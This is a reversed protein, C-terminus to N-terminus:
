MVLVVSIIKVYDALVLRLFGHSLQKKLVQFPSSKNSKEPILNWIRYGLYGLSDHGYHVTRASPLCFPNSNFTRTAPRNPNNDLKFIKSMIETACGHKVKFMEIAMAHINRHHVKISGDMELLQEFSCTDNRYVFRLARKQIKDIKNNIGRDYFMWALPSFGFQSDIFSKMLLRRQNFNHFRGVRILASLKQNAKKCLNSIHYEFSLDKKIYVGLLKECTSEWIQSGGAMAFVVEHKHGAFIFHCKDENLKM